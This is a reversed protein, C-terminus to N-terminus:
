LVRDLVFRYRLWRCISYTGIDRSGQECRVGGHSWSNRTYLYFIWYLHCIDAALDLQQRVAKQWQELAQSEIDM